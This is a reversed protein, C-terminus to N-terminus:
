LSNYLFFCNSIDMDPVPYFRYRQFLLFIIFGNLLKMKCDVPVYDLDTSGSGDIVSESTTETTM